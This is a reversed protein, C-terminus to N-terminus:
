SNAADHACILSGLHSVVFSVLPLEQAHRVLDGGEELGIGFLLADGGDGLVDVLEPVSRHPVLEDVGEGLAVRGQLREEPLGHGLDLAGSGAVSCWILRIVRDDGARIKRSSGSKDATDLKSIGVNSNRHCFQPVLLPLIAPLDGQKEMLIIPFKWLNGLLGPM